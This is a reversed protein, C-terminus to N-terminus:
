PHSFLWRYPSRSWMIKKDKSRLTDGLNVGEDEEEEGTQEDEEEELEEVVDETESYMEQVNDETETDSDEHFNILQVYNNSNSTM